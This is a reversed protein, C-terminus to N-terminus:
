QATPEDPRGVRFRRWLAPVTSVLIAAFVTQNVVGWLPNGSVFLYVAWNVSIDSLIVALALVIGTRRRLVLLTITLPDLITLCVWYIRLGTPFQAYTNLGGAVLDLVHSATGVLFGAIWIVLVIRGRRGSSDRESTSHGPM